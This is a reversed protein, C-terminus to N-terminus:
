ADDRGLAIVFYKARTSGSNRIAHEENSAIFAVSGPGLQTSKGEITVDVTGERILFMEEHRHRHAPHPLAGPALETAHAEVPYDQHTVGDLIQRFSNEGSTRVPLDEYRSAKSPIEEAQAAFGASAILAPVLRYCDRRSFKM